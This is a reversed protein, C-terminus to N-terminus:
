QEHIYIYRQMSALTIDLRITKMGYILLESLKFLIEISNIFYLNVHKARTFLAKHSAKAEHFSQQRSRQHWCESHVIHGGHRHGQGTEVSTQMDM